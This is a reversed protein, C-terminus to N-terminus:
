RYESNQSNDAANGLVEYGDLYTTETEEQIAYSHLFTVTDDLAQPIVAKMYEQMAEAYYEDTAYTSRKPIMYLTEYLMTIVEKHTKIDKSLLDM